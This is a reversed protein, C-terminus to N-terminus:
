VYQHFQTCLHIVTVIWVAAKSMMSGQQSASLHRPRIGPCDFVTEGRAVPQHFTGTRRYHRCKERPVRIAIRDMHQATRAVIAAVPIDRGAEKVLAADRNAKM